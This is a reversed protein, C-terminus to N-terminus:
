SEDKLFDLDLDLDEAGQTTSNTVKELNKESEDL